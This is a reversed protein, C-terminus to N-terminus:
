KALTMKVTAEYGVTRLRALYLGAAVSRGDDSKGDWNLQQDGEAMNGVFLTRVVHGRVDLVQVSTHAEKPLSSSIRTMPNFPNPYNGNMAFVLPTGVGSVGGTVDLTVPVIGSNGAGDHAIVVWANYTDSSLGTSDFSLTLTESQGENVAGSMPNVVLWEVPEIISFEADSIDEASGNSDNVRVLAHISGPASFSATFSGTNALDEALVDWTDGGNGSLAVDVFDVGGFTNWTIIVDDGVIVEEGGNPYTIAMEPDAQVLVVTPSLSHPGAGRGDGVITSPIELAGSFAADITLSLTAKASQDQVVVGYGQGNAVGHWLVEVGDGNTHNSVMPGFSGGTFDTSSNVTVGAPFDMTVDTLWEVDSAGNYVTVEVEFTTGPLYSTIDTTLTSGSINKAGPADVPSNGWVKVDYNLVSESEGNNTVGIYEDATQGAELSVSVSESDLEIAPVPPAEYESITFNYHISPGSKASNGVILGAWAIDQLPTQTSYVADNNGDLTIIEIVGTGDLREIHLGLTLPGGSDAGEFEVDLTGNIEGTFGLLRFSNAALHEVSGSHSFPYSTTYAVFNGYPFDAAEGYGVGPVARYNTGYNWATFQGWGETLTSGYTNMVAEFSDMVPQGTHGRRWEWYDYIIGVGWTEAMWTQWICDEYSGTGGFDLPLEPRKIPSEGPLYNYFDNVVDFVLDEAWTADVENWGGESWRSTAFQTAHKFEHAATVKAAGLVNGDPDDNPPFGLYTNHMVIRTSGQSYNVITTYGYTGAQAEFSVAYTAGPPAQFGHEVVEIEWSTDFYSAIKEVFDPVGNAPDVDTAPVADSGSTSYTLNFHGGPSIYTSRAPDITLFEEIEQISSRSMSGRMEEFQMIMPTVCKLPVFGEVKYESPVKSNDFVHYFKIMLAEETSLLGATEDSNVKALFENATTLPAALAFGALLLVLTLALSITRIM